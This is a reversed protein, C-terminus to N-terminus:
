ESVQGNGKDEQQQQLELKVIAARMLILQYRVDELDRQVKKILFDLSNFDISKSM